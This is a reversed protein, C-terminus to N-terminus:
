LTAGDGNSIGRPMGFVAQGNILAHDAKLADRWGRDALELAYPLTDNTLADTSTHADAPGYMTQVPRPIATIGILQPVPWAYRGGPGRRYEAPTALSTSSSPDPPATTIIGAHDELPHADAPGVGVM